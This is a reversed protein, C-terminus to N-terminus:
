DSAAAARGLKADRRARIEDLPSVGRAAPALERLRDLTELLTKACMSKSTASNGAADLEAALALASMALASSAVNPARKAIEELDRRVAGAVSTDENM